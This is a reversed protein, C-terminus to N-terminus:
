EKVDFLFRFITHKEKSLFSLLNFLFLYHEYTVCPSYTIELIEKSVIFGIMTM